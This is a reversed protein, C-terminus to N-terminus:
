KSAVQECLNAKEFELAAKSPVLYRNRALKVVPLRRERIMMRVQHATVHWREALQFTTFFDAM